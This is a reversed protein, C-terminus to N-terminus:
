ECLPVLNCRMWDAAFVALDSLGVKCDDDFDYELPDTCINGGEIDVYMQAIEQKSMPYNWAEFEDLAGFFQSTYNRDFEDNSNLHIEQGLVFPIPHTETYEDAPETDTGVLEGDIYTYAHKVPESQPDEPDDAFPDGDFVFTVMHWNDYLDDIGASISASTDRRLHFLEYSYIQNVFGFRGSGEGEGDFRWEKGFITQWTGTVDQEYPVVSDAKVWYNITYGYKYFNLDNSDALELGNYVFQANNPDGATDVRQFDYAQGIKGTDYSASGTEGENGSVFADYGSALEALSGDFPLDLVQRKVTLMAEQSVTGAANTVECMYVAEDALTVAPLSLTASTEGTLEAGDKYWQYTEPSISDVSVTFDVDTGADVWVDELEEGEVFSPFSKETEFSYIKGPIIEGTSLTEDVRWYYTKDREVAGDLSYSTTSAPFTGQVIGTDVEGTSADNPECAALMEFSESLYLTHNTIDPNATDYSATILSGDTSAAGIERGTQWTLSGDISVGTQGDEVTDPLAFSPEVVSVAHFGDEAGASTEPYEVFYVDSVGDSASIYGEAVCSGLILEQAETLADVVMFGEDISFSNQSSNLLDMGGKSWLMGGNLNASSSGYNTTLLEGESVIYGSNLNVASAGNGSFEVPSGQLLGYTVDVTAPSNTEQDDFTFRGGSKIYGYNVSISGNGEECYIPGETDIYGNTVSISSIVVDLAEKLSKADNGFIMGGGNLIELSGGDIILDNGYSGGKDPEPARLGYTEGAANNITVEGGFIKLDHNYNNGTENGWRGLWSYNDITLTGGEYVVVEENVHTGNSFYLHNCVADVGDRVYITTQNDDGVNYWINTGIGPVTGSGWTLPSDWDLNGPGNVNDAWAPGAAFLAMLLVFLYKKM